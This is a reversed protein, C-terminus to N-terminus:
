LLFIYYVQVDSKCNINGYEAIGQISIWVGNIAEMLGLPVNVTRQAASLLKQAKLTNQEETSSPMKM